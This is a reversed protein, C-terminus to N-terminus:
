FTLGWSDIYGTDGAAVDRVQLKWVGNASESSADVTYTALVNDASDSGSSNKLRYATGDPAILDIVLDGRWTHKIDVNVKLASPANGTLGTVSISSTVTTNDSITVNNTNTFTGAGPTTPTGGTVAAVTKAADAIGAGCGGSCTGPLPRANAKIAAEIDAPTLTSKAAKMLAALGAIHPAAMSTGQYPKYNETSQVTSGSNLTSLIGNEPTTVTGPTDTARRTEGGPASVDIISGYNSYYSRNGERSTSAVTIVGACNAPTFGSANANSNGAAVVVTSGRSVAGNIANRYVTPCTSSAGGLSMNIVKAPNPNAPIGPVSGGSAWTIADAIDASSGGCKGLVRVHQVKSGYAIGAIGKTNHTAAAITGAVHTGHWSSSSARSGTGCEGDTANWDGEDKPDSDRGNGDRADASSSIFDYGAITNAALDSHAAYGTDIVAVTVGSGTTTDWAGPVNMGGTAEFLDWQKAYDTDNPTVAMAYARVDPEVSAVAPDARFAAMVETVDQGTAASGLDVLAAGDALRREFSLKEGTQAAKDAADSKAAANSTAEATRAKYTVIVKEVPATPTANATMAQSAPGAPKPSPTAQAALAVSSTAAVGLITASAAM